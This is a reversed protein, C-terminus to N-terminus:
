RSGPTGSRRRKGTTRSRRAADVRDALPLHDLLRQFASPTALRAASTCLALPLRGCLTALSRVAHPEAGTRGSGLM